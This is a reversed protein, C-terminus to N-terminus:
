VNKPKKGKKFSKASKKATKSKIFIYKNKNNRSSKKSKVLSNEGSDGNKKSYIIDNCGGSCCHYKSNCLWLTILLLIMAIVALVIEIITEM